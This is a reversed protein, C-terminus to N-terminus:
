GGVFDQPTFPLDLVKWENYKDAPLMAYPQCAQLADMAKQMLLPGKASASAEILAPETMLRGDRALLVRLVIRVKDTPAISPPLTSCSKLHRRLAAVDTASIKASEFAPAEIGNYDGTIPLGLAVGYKVTVDPEVTPVGAAPAAPPPPAAQAPQSAETGQAKAAAQAPSSQPSPRSAPAAATQSKQQAAQQAAGSDTRPKPPAMMASLDVPDPQKQEVPKQPEPPEPLPKVEEPTVIDIAIAQSPTPDFPRANAFLVAVGLLALHVVISVASGSGAPLRSGIM